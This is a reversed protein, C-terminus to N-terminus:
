VDKLKFIIPIIREFVYPYTKNMCALAYCKLYFGIPRRRIEEASVKFLCAPKFKYLNQVPLGLMEMVENIPLGYHHPNGNSECELWQGYYRQDSNLFDPFHDFPDAQTFVYEGQLNSYNEIIFHFYSAPERGVNPMDWDKQIVVCKLPLSWSIDEIWRAIVYTLDMRSSRFDM